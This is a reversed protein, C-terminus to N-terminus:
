DDSDEKDLAAILERLRSAAVYFSAARGEGGKEKAALDAAERLDKRLKELRERIKSRAGTLADDAFEFAAKYDEQSGEGRRCREIVPILPETQSPPQTPAPVEGRAAQCVKRFITDMMQRSDKNQNIRVTGELYGKLLNAEVVTLNNEPPNALM